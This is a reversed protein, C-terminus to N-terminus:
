DRPDLEFPPSPSLPRAPLPRLHSREEPPAIEQGEAPETNRQFAFGVYGVVVM